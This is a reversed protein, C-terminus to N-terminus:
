RPHFRWGQWNEVVSFMWVPWFVMFVHVCVCAFLCFRVSAGMTLNFYLLFAEVVLFHLSRLLLPYHVCVCVYHIPVRVCAVPNFGQPLCFLSFLGHLFLFRSFFLFLSLLM